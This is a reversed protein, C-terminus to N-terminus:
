ISIFRLVAYTRGVINKAVSNLSHVSSGNYLSVAFGQANHTFPDAKANMRTCEDIFVSTIGIASAINNKAINELKTFTEQSQNGTPGMIYSNYHPFLLSRLMIFIASMYSNHTVTMEEGCLFLGSDNDVTICRMPIKKGTREIKIIDKVNKESERQFVSLPICFRYGKRKKKNKIDSQIKNYIFITEEIKFSDSINDKDMICWLHEANCSIVEGDDFYVKYEDELIIPNLHIVETPNGLNDYIMDGVQLDGITRPKKINKGNKLDQDNIVPYVLTGLYIAKGTSRSCCWVVNAPVWSSLLLWKQM